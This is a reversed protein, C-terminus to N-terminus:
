NQGDTQDIAGYTHLRPSGSIAASGKPLHRCFLQRRLHWHPTRERGGCTMSDEGPLKWSTETLREVERGVGDEREVSGMDM